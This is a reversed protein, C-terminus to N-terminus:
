DPEGGKGKFLLVIDGSFNRLFAEPNELIDKQKKKGLIRLAEIKTIYTTDKLVDRLTQKHPPFMKRLCCMTILDLFLEIYPFDPHNAEIQWSILIWCHGLEHLFYYSWLEDVEWSVDPILIFGWRTRDDGIEVIESSAREEIEDDAVVHINLPSYPIQYENCTQDFIRVIKGFMIGAEEEAMKLLDHIIQNQLRMKFPGFGLEIGESEKCKNIIREQLAPDVRFIEEM